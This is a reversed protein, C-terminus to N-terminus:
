PDDVPSRAALGPRNLVHTYIMTTSLRSHGLAEQISRIDHGDRLMQTAYSHRLTHCTVRKELGAKHAADSVTNQLVTKHIHDRRIKGTARDVSLRSAPFVFQWGWELAAKPSMNEIEQPVYTMGFGQALDKDHLTRTQSLQAKLPEACVGPLSVVRDKNGKGHRVVIQEQCFDLDMVRLRVCDMLRLGAAYLLQSMLLCPGKLCAFLRQVEDATLVTPMQRAGKARSFTGIVGVEIGLVQKYMFILANLAQNQTSASVERRVALYEMYTRIGEAGLEEPSRMGGFALYRRAWSLYSEETRASYHKVRIQIRIKELFDAFQADVQRLNQTDPLEIAPTVRTRFSPVAGPASQIPWSKLHAWGVDFFVQYMIRLSDSAQAVQWDRINGQASLHSLFGDVQSESRDELRSSLSRAFM